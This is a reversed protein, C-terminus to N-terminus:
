SKASSPTTATLAGAVIVAFTDIQPGMGLRRTANTAVWGHALVKDCNPGPCSVKVASRRLPKKVDSEDLDEENIYRAVCKGNKTQNPVDRVATRGEQFRSICARELRAGATKNAPSPREPSGLRRHQKSPQPPTKGTMGSTKPGPVSSDQQIQFDAAEKRIRFSELEPTSDCTERLLYGKVSQHLLCVEQEAETNTTTLSSGCKRIQLQMFLDLSMGHPVNATTGIVTSLM